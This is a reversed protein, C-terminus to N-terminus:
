DIEGRSLWRARLRFAFRLWRAREKGTGDRALLRGVYLLDHRQGQWALYPDVPTEFLHYCLRLARSVYPTVAHTQAVAALDTWFDRDDAGKHLRMNIQWLHHLGGNLDGKGLLAHARRCINETLAAGSEPVDRGEEEYCFLAGIVTDPIDQGSVHYRLVGAMGEAEAITLIAPWQHANIQKARTADALVWTLVRADKM